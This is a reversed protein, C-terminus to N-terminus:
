PIAVRSHQDRPAAPTSATAFEVIRAMVLSLKVGDGSLCFERLAPDDQYLPARQRIVARHKKPDELRLMIGPDTCIAQALEPWRECLVAWKGIHRPSLPPKGGFM